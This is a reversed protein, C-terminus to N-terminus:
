KMFQNSFSEKVNKLCVIQKPNVHFNSKINKKIYSFINQFSTCYEKPVIFDFNMKYKINQDDNM